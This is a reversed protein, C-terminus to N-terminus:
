RYQGSWPEWLPVNGSDWLEITSTYDGAQYIKKINAVHGDIMLCNWSQTHRQEPRYRVYRERIRAYANGNGAFPNVSDGLYCVQSTNKVQIVKSPHFAGGVGNNLLYNIGYKSWYWASDIEQRAAPCDFVGKPSWREHGAGTPVYDNDALVQGWYISGQQAPVIWDSFDDSYAALGLGLQKLNSVCKASKAKDRAQNLAPLLMSALIAIIAIVVLLEILTFLNKRKMIM